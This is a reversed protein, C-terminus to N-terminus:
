VKTWTAGNFQWTDNLVHVNDGGFLLVTGGPGDYDLAPALRNLPHVPPSARSWLGGTLTWTDGLVIVAARFSEGGFLVFEGIKSDYALGACKRVPPAQAATLNSWTGSAFTWTDNLFGGRSQGGFMVVYGAQPDYASSAYERAPPVPSLGGLRSWQGGSFVWTDGLIGYVGQGGFLIVHGDRGDYAVAAGSRSKPAHSPALSAWHGASFRWTDNLLFVVGQGGFLVVYGDKADYAISAYGRAPPSVKPHLQHWTGNMRVWTDNQPTGHSNLGGFLITYGDKADYVMSAAFTAPPSSAATPGSNPPSVPRSASAVPLFGASIMALIATALFITGLRLARGSHLMLVLPPYEQTPNLM